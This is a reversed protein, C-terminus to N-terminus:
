WREARRMRHAAGLGSRTAMAERIAVHAECSCGADRPSACQAVASAFREPDAPMYVDHHVREDAGRRSAEYAAVGRLGCGNCVVLQLSREDSTDDPGLELVADIRLRPVHCRPCLFAHTSM